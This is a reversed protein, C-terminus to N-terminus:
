VPKQLRLCASAAITRGAEILKADGSCGQRYQIFIAKRETTNRGGTMFWERFVVVPKQETGHNRMEIGVAEGGESAIRKGLESMIFDKIKAPRPQGTTNEPEAAMKVMLENLRKLDRKDADPLPKDWDSKPDMCKATLKLLEKHEDRTLMNM